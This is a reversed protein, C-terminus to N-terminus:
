VAVVAVVLVFRVRFPQLNTVFRMHHPRDQVAEGQEGPTTPEGNQGPQRNLYPVLTFISTSM